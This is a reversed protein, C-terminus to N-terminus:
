MCVEDLWLINVTVLNWLKRHLIDLNAVLSEKICLHIKIGCVNNISACSFFFRGILRSSIIGPFPMCYTLATPVFAIVVLISELVPVPSTFNGEPTFFIKEIYEIADKPWTASGFLFFIFIVLAPNKLFAPLFDM